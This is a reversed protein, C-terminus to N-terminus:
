IKYESNQEDCKRLNFFCDFIWKIDLIYKNCNDSDNIKQNSINKNLIIHTANKVDKVITGGLLNIMEFVFSNDYGNYYILRDKLITNQFFHLAHRIPIELIRSVAFSKIIMDSIYFLQSNEDKLTEICLPIKDSDLFPRKIEDFLYIKNSFLYYQYFVNKMQKEDFADRFKRIPIISPIYSIDWACINDDLILFNENKTIEKPLCKKQQPSTYLINNENINTFRLGYNECLINIVKNVYSPCAMTNVYFYCYTSLKKFFHAMNKRVQVRYILVKANSQLPIYYIDEKPDKQLDDIAKNIDEDKQLEKVMKSFVLTEDIDLILNIKESFSLSNLSKKLNETLFKVNQSKEEPHKGGNEFKIFNQLNKFFIGKEYIDKLVLEIEDLHQLLEGNFNNSEEDLTIITSNTDLSVEDIHSNEKKINKKFILKKKIRMKQKLPNIKHKSKERTKKNKLFNTKKESKYKPNSEKLINKQIETTNM